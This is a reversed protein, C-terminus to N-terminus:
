GPFLKPPFLSGALLRLSWPPRQCGDRESAECNLDWELEVHWQNDCSEAATKRGQNPWQHASAPSGAAVPTHRLRAGCEPSWPEVGSCDRVVLLLAWRRGSSGSRGAGVIDFYFNCWSKWSFEPLFKFFDLLFGVIKSHAGHNAPGLTLGFIWQAQVGYYWFVYLYQWSIMIICIKFM